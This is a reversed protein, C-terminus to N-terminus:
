IIMGLFKSHFGEAVAQQQAPPQQAPLKDGQLVKLAPMPAGVAKAIAAKQKPTFNPIAKMVSNFNPGGQGAMNRVGQVVANGIGGGGQAPAQQGGQDQQMHPPAIRQGPTQPNGGNRAYSYGQVMGGLTRGLADTTAAGINGAKSIVGPAADAAKGLASGVKSLMGPGKKAPAKQPAQQQPAQEPEQATPQQAPEEPAPGKDQGQPATPDANNAPDIKTQPAPVNTNAANNSNQNNGIGPTTKKATLNQNAKSWDPAQKAGGSAIRANSKATFDQQKQRNAVGQQIDKAKAAMDNFSEDFDVDDYAEVLDFIKM